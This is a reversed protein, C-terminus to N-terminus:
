PNRRQMREQIVRLEERIGRLEAEHKQFNAVREARGASIRESIDIVKTLLYVQSSVVAVIFAGM